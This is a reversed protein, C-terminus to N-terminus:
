ELFMLYDENVEFDGIDDPISDQLDEVNNKNSNDVSPSIGGERRLKMAFGALSKKSDARKIAYDWWDMKYAIFDEDEKGLYYEARRIPISANAHFEEGKHEDNEKKCLNSVTVMQKVNEIIEKAFDINNKVLKVFKTKALKKNGHKKGHIDRPYEEWFENFLNDIESLNAEQLKTANAPVGGARSNNTPKVSSNTEEVTTLEEVTKTNADGEWGENTDVCVETSESNENQSFKEDKPNNKPNNSKNKNIYYSDSIRVLTHRFDQCVLTQFGSMDFILDDAIDLLFMIKEGNIKYYNRRPNGRRDMEIIGLETLFKDVDRQTSEKITTAKQIADRGAFFWGDFDRGKDEAVKNEVSILNSLIVSAELQLIQTLKRNLVWYGGWDLLSRHLQTM